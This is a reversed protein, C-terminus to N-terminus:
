LLSFNFNTPFLSNSVNLSTIMRACALGTLAFDWSSVLRRTSSSLSLLPIEPGAPYRTRTLLRRIFKRQRSAVDSPLESALFNRGLLAEQRIRKGLAAVHIENGHFERHTCVRKEHCANYICRGREGLLHVVSRKINGGM